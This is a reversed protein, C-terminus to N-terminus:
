QGQDDPGDPDFQYLGEAQAFAAVDPPSPCLELVDGPCLHVFFGMGAPVPAKGLVLRGIGAGNRVLYATGTPRHVVLGVADGAQFGGVPAAHPHRRGGLSIGSLEHFFWGIGGDRSCAEVSGYLPPADTTYAVGPAVLSAPHAFAIGPNMHPKTVSVFLAGWEADPDGADARVYQRHATVSIWRGQIVVDGPPADPCARPAPPTSPPPPTPSAPAPSESDAGSRETDTDEDVVVRKRKQASGKAKAKAGQPSELYKALLVRLDTRFTDSRQDLLPAEVRPVLVNTPPECTVDGLDDYGQWKILYCVPDRGARMRARGLCAEQIYIEPMRFFISV